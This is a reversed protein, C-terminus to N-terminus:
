RTLPATFFPNAHEGDIGAGRESPLNLGPHQRPWAWAAGNGARPCAAPYHDAGGLDFFLGQSSMIERADGWGSMPAAGFARCDAADLRYHDNGGTDIFVAHSNDHAAGFGLTGLRYRDNGGEDIFLAVSFDHGAGLATSHSAQYHDDGNGRALLVGAAGHAAAGMAYWAADFRDSGGADILLGASQFYGAGQAFVGAEYHDDGSLDILAGLGGPLSRGDSASARVGMAAGQGMSLNREPLQSSPFQLPLPALTYRDDGGVDILLAVGGPGASGQAHALAHHHDNGHRDILLASGGLAWGQAHSRANYRDDGAEDILLANGFLAAAQSFGHEASDYRDDGESDRLLAYGLVAAAPGSAHATSLYRDNGRQDFILQIPAVEGVPRFSYEDNGGTDVLLLVDQVAHREDKGTADVLIRGLPTDVQWRVAPLPPTTALFHQFRQSALVLDFFGAALAAMDVQGLLLRYDADDFAQVHGLVAQRLLADRTLSAPLRSFAQRRLREAQAIAIILHALEDRLPTHDLEPTWTHHPAVDDLAALTQLAYGLPDPQRTLQSQREDLPAPSRWLAAGALQAAVLTLEAPTDVTERIALEVQGAHYGAHVPDKVLRDLLPPPSPPAPQPAQAPWDRSPLTPLGPPGILRSARELADTAPPVAPLPNAQALVSGSLVLSALGFGKLLATISATFGPKM